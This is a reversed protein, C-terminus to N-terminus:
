STVGSTCESLAGQWTQSAAAPLHPLYDAPMRAVVDALYECIQRIEQEDYQQLERPGVGAAEASKRVFAGYATTGDEDQYGGYLGGRGHKTEYLDTLQAADWKNSVLLARGALLRLRAHWALLGVMIGSIRHIAM